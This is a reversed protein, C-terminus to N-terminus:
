DWPSDKTHSGSSVSKEHFFGALKEYTTGLDEPLIRSEGVTTMFNADGTWRPLVHLHLHDEIGAGAARGLNMGMNYGQPQYANKLAAELDRTLEMMETMTETGLGALTGTHRYPAIMAHGCNYPFLNLVILNLRGRYLILRVRDQAPDSAAMDCFICGEPRAAGSMYQYRWPSWLYDM